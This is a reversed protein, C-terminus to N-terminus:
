SDLNLVGRSLVPLSSLSEPEIRHTFRVKKTRISLGEALLGQGSSGFSM